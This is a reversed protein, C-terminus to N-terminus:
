PKGGASEHSLCDCKENSKLIAFCYDCIRFNSIHIHNDCQDLRMHYLRDPINAQGSLYFKLPRLSNSSGCIPCRYSDTIFGCHYCFKSNNIDM